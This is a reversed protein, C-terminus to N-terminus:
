LIEKAKLILRNYNGNTCTITKGYLVEKELYNKSFDFM